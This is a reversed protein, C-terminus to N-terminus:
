SSLTRREYWPFAWFVYLLAQVPQDRLFTAFEFLQFQYYWKSVTVSAELCNISIKPLVACLSVIYNHTVLHGRRLFRILCYTSRPTVMRNTCHGINLIKWFCSCCRIVPDFHWSNCDPLDDEASCCRCARLSLSEQRPWERLMARRRTRDRIWELQDRFAFHPYSAGRGWDPGRVNEVRKRAAWIYTLLRLSTRHEEPWNAGIVSPYRSTHPGCCEHTKNLGSHHIDEALQRLTQGYDKRQNAKRSQKCPCSGGESKWLQTSNQCLSFPLYLFRADPELPM